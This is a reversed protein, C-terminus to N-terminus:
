PRVAHVTIQESKITGWNTTITATVYIEVDLALGSGNYQLGTSTPTFTDTSITKNYGEIKYSIGIGYALGWTADINGNNIVTNYDPTPLTSKDKLTIKAKSGLDITKNAADDITWLEPTVFSITQFPSRLVLECYEQIQGNIDKITVKGDSGAGSIQAKVKITGLDYTNVTPSVTLTNSSISLKGYVAQVKASQESAPALSYIVNETSPTEGDIKLVKYLDNLDATMDFSSSTWKGVVTTKGDIIYAGLQEVIVARECKVGAINMAFKKGNFRTTSKRWDFNESSTIEYQNSGTPWTNYSYLTHTGNLVTGGEIVLELKDNDTTNGPTFYLYIQPTGDADTDTIRNAYTKGSATTVYYVPYVIPTTNINDCMYDRGGLSNLFSRVDLSIRQDSASYALSSLDSATKASLTFDNLIPSQTAERVAMVELDRSGILKGDATKFTATVFCTEGIASSKDTDEVTIIGDTIKFIGKAKGTTQAFSVTGGSFGMAEMSEFIKGTGTVDRGLKISDGLNYSKDYVFSEPALIAQSGSIANKRFLKLISTYLKQTRFNFYDSATTYNNITIDLSSAYPEYVEINAPKIKIGLIGDTNDVWFAKECTLEPKEARTKYTDTFEFKAKNLDFTKPWVKFTAIPYSYDLFEDSANYLSYATVFDSWDDASQKRYTVSQLGNYASGEALVKYNVGDLTIVYLGDVENILISPITLDKKLTTVVDGIVIYGDANITVNASADSGDKGDEGKKGTANVKNGAADTVYVYSSGNDTSVMWYNDDSVKFKPIISTGDLGKQGDAGDKGDKGDKGNTITLKSGDSLTLEYGNTIASYSVVFKGAQIAAEVDKISQKNADIQEQLNDIDDDYDKCGVFSVTTSFALAGLLMVKVFNKKM